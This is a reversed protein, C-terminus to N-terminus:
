WNTGYLMAASISILTWQWILHYWEQLVGGIGLYKYIVISLIFLLIGFVNIIRM